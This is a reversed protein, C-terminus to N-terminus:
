GNSYASLTGSSCSITVTIVKTTTPTVSPVITILTPQSTYLSQLNTLGTLIMTGSQSQVSVPIYLVVLMCLICAVIPRHRHYALPPTSIRMIGMHMIHYRHQM